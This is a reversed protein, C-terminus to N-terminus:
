IQNIAHVIKTTSTDHMIPISMVKGGINKVFDAGIIKNEDWDGGKVLFDPKLRQILLMPTEEEFSVVFDVSAISALVAMRNHLSNIPRGNGKNLKRVSDDSNVAVVLTKGLSKAHALYTVHGRHLIDFCGNTFVLPREIKEVLDHLQDSNYIKNEFEPIFAM